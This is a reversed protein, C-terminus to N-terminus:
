REEVLDEEEERGVGKDEVLGEVLRVGFTVEKVVVVGAEEVTNDVEEGVGREDFPVGDEEEVVEAFGWWVGVTCTEAFEAWAFNLEELPRRVVKGEDVVLVLLKDEVLLWVWLVTEAVDSADAFGMGRGEAPTEVAFAAAFPVV